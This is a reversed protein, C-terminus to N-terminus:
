WLVLGKVTAFLLETLAQAIGLRPHYNKKEDTCHHQHGLEPACTCAFVGKASTSTMFIYMGRTVCLEPTM